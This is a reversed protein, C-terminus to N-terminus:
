KNFSFSTFTMHLRLYPICKATILNNGKIFKGVRKTACEKWLKKGDTTGKSIVL